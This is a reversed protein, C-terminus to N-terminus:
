LWEDDGGKQEENASEVEDCECCLQEGAYCCPGVMTGCRRCDRMDQFDVLDDCQPCLTPMDM